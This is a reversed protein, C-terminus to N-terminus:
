KMEDCVTANQAGQVWGLRKKSIMMADEMAPLCTTPITVTFAFSRIEWIDILDVNWDNQLQVWIGTSTLYRGM